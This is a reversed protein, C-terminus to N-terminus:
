RLRWATRCPLLVARLEEVESLSASGGFGSELTHGARCTQIFWSDCGEIWRAIELLDTQSLLPTAWTTRFEHPLGSGLIVSVSQAIAATEVPTRVIEHYRSLPAKIDMALYQVLGRRIAEELIKPYVGNTDLKVPYGLPALKELFRLLGIQATPEGGSLVVGQLKGKRLQLHRIVQDEPIIQAYREPDVLQPNHCYPCRFPCGRTFIVASIKGPFDILSTKQFGGIEM